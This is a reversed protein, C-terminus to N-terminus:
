FYTNSFIIFCVKDKLFYPLEFYMKCYKEFPLNYIEKTPKEYKFRSFSNLHNKRIM